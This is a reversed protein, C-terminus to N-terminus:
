FDVAASLTVGQNDFFLHSRATNSETGVQWWSEYVYGAYLHINPHNPPQYGLGAKFNLIPVENWFFSEQFEGKAPRGAPTLTTTATSFRQRICTFTDAIDLNTLFSLGPQAFNYDLAVGFHPGAGVTYNVTRAAYVGNGAAAVKFPESVTTDFWTFATRSGPGIIARFHRGAIIFIV